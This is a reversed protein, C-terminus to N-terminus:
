GGADASQRDPRLNAFLVHTRWRGAIRLYNRATGEYNFGCRELVGRSAENEPLCASEIRSLDLDEFAHGVVARVAETMYGNRAHTAGIWYGLTAAQAPGRRINDLTVAGLLLDDAARVMFLPLGTGGAISRGAWYVRNTFSRRTLHDAAWTPEWPKLFECSERRLVAWARFDTHQPPRLTLRETRIRLRPGFRMM